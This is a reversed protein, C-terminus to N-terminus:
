SIKAVLHDLVPGLNDYDKDSIKRDTDKGDPGKCTLTFHGKSDFHTKDIKQISDYAINIKGDIVLGNEEAVIKRNRIAYLNMGLLLATVGCIIPLWKQNWIMMDDPKGGKDLVHEKYFSYRMSWEYKSLYGDYLFIIAFVICACIWKILTKKKILPAVLAMPM